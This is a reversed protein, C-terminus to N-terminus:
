RRERPECATIRNGKFEVLPQAVHELKGGMMLIAQRRAGECLAASTHRLEAELTGGGHFGESFVLMVTFVWETM